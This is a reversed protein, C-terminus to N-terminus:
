SNYNNREDKMIDQLKSLARHKRALLTGVPINWEGSLDNFSRRNFETEIIIDRDKPKLQELADYMREYIYEDKYFHDEEEEESISEARSKANIVGEMYEIKTNKMNKRRIDIIKNKISRYIYAGLNEVPESINVRSYINLAVDQIIDEADVSYSIYDLYGHVYNVLKNYEAAFFDKIATRINIGEKM